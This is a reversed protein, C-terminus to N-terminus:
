KFWRGKKINDIFQSTRLNKYVILFLLLLGVRQWMSWNEVREFWQHDWMAFAFSVQLIALAWLASFFRSIM